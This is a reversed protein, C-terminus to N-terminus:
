AHRSQVHWLCPRNRALCRTAKMARRTAHIANGALCSCGLWTPSPTALHPTHHRPPNACPNEWMRAARQQPILGLFHDGITQAADSQERNGRASRTQVIGTCLRYHTHVELRPSMAIHRGQAQFRTAQQQHHTTAKRSLDCLAVTLHFM